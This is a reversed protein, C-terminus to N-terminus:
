DEALKNLCARQAEDYNFFFHVFSQDKLHKKIAFHQIEKSFLFALFICSHESLWEMNKDNAEWADLSTMSWSRLDFLIVWPKVDGEKSTMVHSKLDKLWAESAEKNTPGTLASYLIRNEFRMTWLGHINRQKM